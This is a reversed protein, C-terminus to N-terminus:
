QSTLKRGDVCTKLTNPEFQTLWRKLGPYRKSSKIHQDFVQQTQNCEGLIALSSVYFSNQYAAKQMRPNDLDYVKEWNKNASYAYKKSEEFNGQRDLELAYMSGGVAMLVEGGYHGSEVIKQGFEYQKLYQGSHYFYQSVALVRDQSYPDSHKAEVFPKLWAVAQSKHEKEEKASLTRGLDGYMGARTITIVKENPYMKHLLDINYYLKKHSLFAAAQQVMIYKERADENKIMDWPGQQQPSHACGFIFFLAIIFAYKM